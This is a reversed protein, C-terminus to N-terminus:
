SWTRRARTTLGRGDRMVSRFTPPARSSAVGAGAQASPSRRLQRDVIEARRAPRGGGHRDRHAGCHPCDGEAPRARLERPDRHRDGRFRAVSARAGARYVAPNTNVIVLGARLAGFMAIPYQLLNPMMLAIRDGKKMGQRQLWAGFANAHEDLERFSVRRVWRCSRPATRMSRAAARSSKTSRASHAPISRPAARGASLIEALDQEHARYEQHPSLAEEAAAHAAAM